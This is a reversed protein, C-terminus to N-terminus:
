SYVFNQTVTSIGASNYVVVAVTGGDHAPTVCAIRNDDITIWDAAATGGGGGFKIGTTAAVDDVGALLFGTGYIIIQEGGATSGAAPSLSTLTPVAQAADPHTIATITGRSTLVVSVKDRAKMDGSPPQWDVSFYARYAEVTPGGSTVEYWRVDVKNADGFSLTEARLAEQGVDYATADAAKTKRDLALTLV